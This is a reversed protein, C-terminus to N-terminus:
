LRHINHLLFASESQFGDLVAYDYSKVFAMTFAGVDTYEEAFNVFYFIKYSTVSTAEDYETSIWNTVRVEFGDTSVVAETTFCESLDTGTTPTYSFSLDTTVAPFVATSMQQALAACLLWFLFMFLALAAM